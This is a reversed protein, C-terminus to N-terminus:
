KNFRRRILKEGSINFINKRYRERFAPSNIKTVLDSKQSATNLKQINTKLLILFHRKIM